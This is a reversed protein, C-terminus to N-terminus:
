FECAKWVPQEIDICCNPLLQPKPAECGSATYQQSRQQVEVLLLLKPVIFRPLASIQHGLRIYVCTQHQISTFLPKIM